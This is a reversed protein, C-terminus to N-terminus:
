LAELEAQLRRLKEREAEVVQAPAKSVFGDNALKREARQVEDELKAREAARKREAAGLDLDESALIEVAGGPVLVKEV